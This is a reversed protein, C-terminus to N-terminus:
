SCGMMARFAESGIQSFQVVGKLDEVSRLSINLGSTVLDQTTERDTWVEVARKGVIRLQESTTHLWLGDANPIWYDWRVASPGLNVSGKPSFIQAAGEVDDIVSVSSSLARAAPVGINSGGCRVVVICSDYLDMGTLKSGQLWAASTLVTDGIVASITIEQREGFQHLSESPVSPGFVTTSAVHNWEVTSNLDGEYAYKARPHVHTQYKSLAFMLEQVRKRLGISLHKM